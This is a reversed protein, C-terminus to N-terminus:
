KQGGTQHLATYLLCRNQPPKQTKYRNQPPKGVPGIVVFVQRAATGLQRKGSRGACGPLVGHAGMQTGARGAGPIRPRSAPGTGLGLFVAPRRVATRVPPRYPRVAEDSGSQGRPHSTMPQRHATSDRRGDPRVLPRASATV